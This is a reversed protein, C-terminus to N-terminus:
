TTDAPGRAESAHQLQVGREAGPQPLQEMGRVRVQLLGPVPRGELEHLITDERGGAQM